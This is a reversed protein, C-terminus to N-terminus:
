IEFGPIVELQFLQSGTLGNSIGSSLFRGITIKAGPVANTILNTALDLNADDGATITLAGSIPVWIRGQELVTVMNKAPYNNGIEEPNYVSIGLFKAPYAFNKVIKEPNTGRMLPRGFEIVEEAGFSTKVNVTTDVIQGAQAPVYNYGYAM